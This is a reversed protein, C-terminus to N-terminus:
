VEFNEWQERVRDILGDFEPTHRIPDLLPDWRSIM